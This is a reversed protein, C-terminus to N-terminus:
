RGHSPRRRLLTHSTGSIGHYIFGLRQYLRMAPNNPDCSLSVQAYRADAHQLLAQMLATGAGKGRWEPLVALTCVEPTEDDVYGWGPDEHTLLRLWAAGLPEGSADEAIFGADHPQGWGATYHKFEPEDIIGRPLPYHAFISQYLMERM